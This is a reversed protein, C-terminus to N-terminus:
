KGINIQTPSKINFIFQINKVGGQEEATKDRLDGRLMAATRAHRERAFHDPYEKEILEDAQLVRAGEKGDARVYPVVAQRRLVIHKVAIADMGERLVRAIRPHSLGLCEFFEDDGGVKVM